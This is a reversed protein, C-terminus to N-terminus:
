TQATTASITIAGWTNSLYTTEPAIYNVVTTPGTGAVGGTIIETSGPTATSANVWTTTYTLTTPATNSNVAATLRIYDATYPATDAAQQYITTATTTLNYFGTTTSLTTPTGTGGSKTAGTYAVGNITHATNAGSLYIIGALNTALDNWETDAETGTSTKAVQWKILGGSNFFWSAASTNAFTITHTTTITWTSNPTNTAQWWTGTAPTVTAGSSAANARNTWLTSLDTAVNNLITITNGAVPATRSTITVGTHNGISTIRNVLDAWSTATVTGGVAVTSLTTTQGYGYNASGSNGWIANVNGNATTSAFGNYDTAEILGGVTYTM